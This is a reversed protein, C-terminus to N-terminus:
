SKIFRAIPFIRPSAGQLCDRAAKLRNPLFSLGTKFCSPTCVDIVRWGGPMPGAIHGKVPWDALRKRRGKLILERAGEHHRGDRGANGSKSEYDCPRSKGRQRFKGHSSAIGGAVKGVQQKNRRSQQWYGNSRIWYLRRTMPSRWCQAQIACNESPSRARATPELADAL